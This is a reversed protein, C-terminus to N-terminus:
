SGFFIKTSYALRRLQNRLLYHKKFKLEIQPVFSKNIQKLKLWLLRENYM